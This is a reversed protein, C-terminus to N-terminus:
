ARALKKSRTPPKKPSQKEENKQWYLWLAAAIFISSYMGSTVGIFLTMAMDWISAGGFLLMAVLTIQVTVVTYISRTVVEQISRTTLDEITENKSRNRLNERIRDFVIVTDNMSYGLITLIAAIFASNVQVRFISVLGVTIVLDHLLAAVATIGFKVQFRIALYIIQLLAAIAIALAGLQTLESSISASVHEESIPEFKALTALDTFLKTQQEPTLEQTRIIFESKTADGGPIAAQQVTPEGGVSSKVAATVEAQTLVKEFRVDAVLGGKFDIGTNLGRFYFTAMGAVTLLISLAIWTKAYKMYNIKTLINM